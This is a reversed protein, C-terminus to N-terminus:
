DGSKSYKQYARRLKSFEERAKKLDNFKEYQKMKILSDLHKNSFPLPILMERIDILNVHRIVGHALGELQKRFAIRITKSQLYDFLFDSDIIRPRIIFFNRSAIAPLDKKTVIAMRDFDFINQLLIDGTALVAKPNRKVVSESIFTRAKLIRNNKVDRPRIFKWTGKGSLDASSYNAGIAIHALEKLKISSMGYSYTPSKLGFFALLRSSILSPHNSTLGVITSELDDVIKWDKESLTHCEDLFVIGFFGSPFRTIEKRFMSLSSLLVPTDEFEMELTTQSYGELGAILRKNKLSHELLFHSFMDLLVNRQAIILARKIKKAEFLEKLVQVIIASRGFGPAISLLIRGRSVAAKRIIEICDKQYQFPAIEGVAKKRQM